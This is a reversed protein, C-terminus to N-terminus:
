VLRGQLVDHMLKHSSRTVGAVSVESISNVMELLLGPIQEQKEVEHDLLYNSWKM